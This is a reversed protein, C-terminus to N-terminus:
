KEGKKKKDKVPKCFVCKIWMWKGDEYVDDYILFRTDSVSDRNQVSYVIFEAEGWKIKFMNREGQKEMINDKKELELELKQCQIKLEKLEEMVKSLCLKKNEETIYAANTRQFVELWYDIINIDM